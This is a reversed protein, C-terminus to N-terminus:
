SAKVADPAAARHRIAAAVASRSRVGLKRLVRETHRRATHETVSLRAAIEHNRHGEALLGAVEAERPTLGFMAQLGSAPLMGPGTPPDITVLILRPMGGAGADLLVSRIVYAAGAIQLCRRL